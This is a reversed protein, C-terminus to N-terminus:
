FEEWEQEPSTSAQSATTKRTLRPIAPGKTPRAARPTPLAPAPPAGRGLRQPIAEATRGARAAPTRATPQPAIASDRARRHRDPAPAASTSHRGRAQGRRAPAQEEELLFNEMLDELAQAQERLSLSASAAEEVLSSNQQTTQDMQVVARNIQEIGISQERSAGAIEAILDSVRKVSGVIETLTAGSADVLKSGEEVKQVSDKILSKIEKAAGASRQALNRVEAAVVAFGRGQEGARAAEVAANLALLNTQFAIEDIVGIIDAIKKSSVNIESMAAIAKTVVSGGRDAHERAIIALKNAEFANDASQKVTGTMEELSSATEELSSAQEETRQSLDENGDAIDQAASNITLSATKVQHIVQALNDVLANIGDCLAQISGIKGELPIRQTLDGERAAMVVEETKQVAQQLAQSAHIQETIDTAFKVVKFPRGNMDLIPNYSAQIWVEQGGKGIRKYQGTDYEGRGLKEWFQRYEASQRYAPEVFMGHHQGRVEDLRYGLPRLFNENASLITGNLAFEIVGQSKDIAAIQGEYDAAKLKAATIDTAFKVVKFPRGNLDLIPNYSAQIWVEHGGKGIRKYQGADYEGRGLKEWFQRYEASQRYAPEVFMGHHQGRVEELRYGLPHLFNDNASLITGDLNFEIVGQSKGIAAIQGEYDAAKLKAATIDTAFKIVKFPRGNQDLIPNYNAQLWIERGGKGIRRYQGADYEGRGLKGWFQRYEASQRYAPDVFMGHHQDRIEELRYGMIHLFNDNATLIHGDLTFEIVGQSRSIAAIQGRMEALDAQEKAGSPALTSGAVASTSPSDRYAANKMIRALFAYTDVWAQRVEATFAAGLGQQLTWLLATGVTDFHEARVRYHIHRRGLEEVAPVLTTVSHLGKVAVDFMGMLLKGQKVMDSTQFLDQVTPDLEFLRNYFMAAAQDAIPNVAAWTEQVLRIKEDSLGGEGQDVMGQEVMGQEVM